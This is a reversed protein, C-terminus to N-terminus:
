LDLKYGMGRVSLILRPIEPNEEIKQRLKVIYNDITRSNTNSDIHQILEERLIVEGKRRYFLQMLQFERPNLKLSVGNKEAEYKKFNLKIGNFEVIDVNSALSSNARLATKRLFAKIRALLELTSFPKTIYDDAGIDLSMVKSAEEGKATLMIIVLNPYRKRLIRCVDFGNRKPMMIDLLVIDPKFGEVRLLAEEGDSAVFVQYNEMELCEQLGNRIAEEDEVVLIKYKVKNIDWINVVWIIIEM